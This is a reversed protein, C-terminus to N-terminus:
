VNVLTLFVYPPKSETLRRYSSSRCRCFRCRCNQNHGPGWPQQVMRNKTGFYKTVTYSVRWICVFFLRWFSSIKLVKQAIMKCCKVVKPCMDLVRSRTRKFAMCTKTREFTDLPEFCTTRSNCFHIWKEMAKLYNDNRHRWLRIILAILSFMVSRRWQGKRTTDLITLLSKGVRSRIPQCNQQSGIVIWTRVM